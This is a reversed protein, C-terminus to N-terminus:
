ERGAPDTVTIGPNTGDHKRDVFTYTAGPDPANGQSFPGWFLDESALRTPQQWLETLPVEAPPMTRAVKPTCGPYYLAILLPAAVIATHNM